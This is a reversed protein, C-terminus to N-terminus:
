AQLFRTTTTPVQDLGLSIPSSTILFAEQIHFFRQWATQEVGNAETNAAPLLLFSSPFSPQPAAWSCAPNLESTNATGSEVEEEGLLLYYSLKLSPWFTWDQTCCSLSRFLVSPFMFHILAGPHLVNLSTCLQQSPQLSPEATLLALQKGLTWNKTSQNQLECGGTVGDSWGWWCYFM